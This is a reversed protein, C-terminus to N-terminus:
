EAARRLLNQSGVIGFPIVLLTVLATWTAGRSTKGTWCISTRCWILAMRYDLEVVVIDM